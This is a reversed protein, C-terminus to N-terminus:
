NSHADSAGRGPHFACPYVATKIPSSEHLVMNQFAMNRAFLIAPRLWFKINIEKQLKLTINSFYCPLQRFAFINRVYGLFGNLNRM